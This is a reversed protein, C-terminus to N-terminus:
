RFFLLPGHPTIRPAHQGYNWAFPVGVLTLLYPQWEPGWNNTSGLIWKLEGSRSFKVIADQNRLSVM